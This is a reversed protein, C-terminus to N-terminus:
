EGRLKAARLRIGFAVEKELDGGVDELMVAHSMLYEAGIKDREAQTLTAPHLYLPEVDHVGVVPEERFAYEGWEPEYYRWAVPEQKSAEALWLERLAALETANLLVEEASVGFIWSNSISEADAILQEPTKM